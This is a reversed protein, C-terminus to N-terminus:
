ERPSSRGGGRTSLDVCGDAEGTRPGIINEVAQEMAGEEEMRASTCALINKLEMKVRETNANWTAFAAVAKECDNDNDLDPTPRCRAKEMAEVAEMVNNTMVDISKQIKSIAGVTSVIQGNIQGCVALHTTAAAGQQKKKAQKDAM